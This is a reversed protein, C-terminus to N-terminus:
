LRSTSPLNEKALRACFPMMTGERFYATKCKKMEELDINMLNPWVRLEIRLPRGRLFLKEWLKEMRVWNQYKLYNYLVYPVGYTRLLGWAIKWRDKDPMAETGLASYPIRAGMPIISNGNKRLHFSLSCTRLCFRAVGFSTTLRRLFLPERLIVQPNSGVQHAVLDLLESLYLQRFGAYGGVQQVTRVRLTSIFSSRELCFEIAPRIQDTNIGPTVTLSLETDIGLEELNEIARLKVNLLKAGNLKLYIEDSFGNFSFVVSKLGAQKLAAAYSRDALRTGNTVLVARNQRSAIRIIEPLDPRTTPEKGALCLHKGSFAQALARIEEVTAPSYTHPQEYCVPCALDCRDSVYIIVSSWPTQNPPPPTALLEYFTVEPEVLCHSSDAVGDHKELVVGQETALVRAPIEEGTLPSYSSTERLTRIPGDQFTVDKQICM